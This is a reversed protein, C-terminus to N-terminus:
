RKALPAVGRRRLPDGQIKDFKTFYQRALALIQSDTLHDTTVVGVIAMEVANANSKCYDRFEDM